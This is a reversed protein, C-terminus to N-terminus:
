TLAFSNSLEPAPVFFQDALGHYKDPLPRLAKTLLRAEEMNIYLDGKGSKHLPGRAAVIDGLDWGKIEGLTAEDLGKRNVYLQIQDSGDQILLFAGRNRILRGAVAFQNGAEELAEKSCDGYERQLDAAMATRRFDNPFPNRQERLGSLKARREAILKNEDHATSDSQQEDNM